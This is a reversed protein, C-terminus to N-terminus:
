EKAQAVNISLFFCTRVKLTHYSLAVYTRLGEQKIAQQSACHSILYPRFNPLKTTGWGHIENQFNHKKGFSRRCAYKLFILFNDLVQNKDSLPFFMRLKSVTGHQQHKQFLSSASVPSREFQLLM